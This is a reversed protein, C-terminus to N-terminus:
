EAKKFEGIVEYEDKNSNYKMVQVPTMNGKRSETIAHQIADEKKDFGMMGFGALGYYTLRFQKMKIAGKKVKRLRVDLM